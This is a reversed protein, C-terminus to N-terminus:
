DYHIFKEVKLYIICDDDTVNRIAQMADHPTDYLYIPALISAGRDWYTFLWLIHHRQDVRYRGNWRVIRFINM